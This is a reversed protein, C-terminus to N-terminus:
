KPYKLISAFIVFSEKPSNKNHKLDFKGQIIRQILTKTNIKLRIM